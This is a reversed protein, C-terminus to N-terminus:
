KLQQQIPLWHKETYIEEKRQTRAQPKPQGFCENNNKLEEIGCIPQECSVDPGKYIHCMDPDSHDPVEALATIEM